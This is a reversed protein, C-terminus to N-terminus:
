FWIPFKFLFYAVWERFAENSLGILFAVLVAIGGVIVIALGEETKEKM